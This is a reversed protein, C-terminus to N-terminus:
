FDRGIDAILLWSVVLSTMEGTLDGGLGGGM